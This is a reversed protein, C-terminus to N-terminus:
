ESLNFTSVTPLPKLSLSASQTTYTPANTTMGIDSGNAVSLTVTQATTANLLKARIYLDNGTNIPTIQSGITFTTFSVANNTSYSWEAGAFASSPTIQWPTSGGGGNTSTRKIRFFVYTSGDTANDVGNWTSVWNNDIFGPCEGTVSNSGASSTIDTNSTNNDGAILALVSYDVDYSPIVPAPEPDVSLCRYTSCGESDIIKIWVYFVGAAAAGTNWQVSLSATTGTATVPAAADTAGATVTFNASPVHGFATISTNVGFVYQDGPTLGGVVYTHIRGEFPAVPTSTQAFMSGAFLVVVFLMTLKKFQNKMSRMMLQTLFNYKLVNNCEDEKEIGLFLV